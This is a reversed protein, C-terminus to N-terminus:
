EEPAPNVQQRADFRAGPMGWSRFFDGTTRCLTVNVDNGAAILSTGTQTAAVGAAEAAAHPLLLPDSLTPEPSRVALRQLLAARAEYSLFTIWRPGDDEPQYSVALPEAALDPRIVGEADLSGADQVRVKLLEAQTAGSGIVSLLLLRVDADTQKGPLPVPDVRHGRRSEALPRHTLPVGNATWWLKPGFALAALQSGTLGDHRLALRELSRSAVAPDERGALLLDSLEGAAVERAFRDLTGVAARVWHAPSRCVRALLRATALVSPDDLLAVERRGVLAARVDDDVVDLASDM